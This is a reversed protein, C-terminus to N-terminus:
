TVRTVCTLNISVIFHIDFLNKKKGGAVSPVILFKKKKGQSLADFTDQKSRSSDFDTNYGRTFSISPYLPIDFVRKNM